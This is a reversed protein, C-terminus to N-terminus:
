LWVGYDPIFYDMTIHLIIAILGMTWIPERKLKIVFKILLLLIIAIPAILLHVLDHYPLFTNFPLIKTTYYIILFFDAIFSFSICVFLLLLREKFKEKGDFYNRYYFRGIIFLSCGAIFHPLFGPM